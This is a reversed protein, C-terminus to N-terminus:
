IFFHSALASSLYSIRKSVECLRWRKGSRFCCSMFINLKLGFFAILYDTRHYSPSFFLLSGIMWSEDLGYKNSIVATFSETMPTNFRLLLLLLSYFPSSHSRPCKAAWYSPSFCTPTPRATSQSPECLPLKYKHGSGLWRDASTCLPLWLCLQVGHLHCNHFNTVLSTSMFLCRKHILIVLCSCGKVDCWWHNQPFRTLSM